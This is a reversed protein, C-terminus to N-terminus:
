PMVGAVTRLIAAQSSYSEKKKQKPPSKDPSSPEDDKEDFYSTVSLLGQSVGQLRMENQIRTRTPEPLLSAVAAAATWWVAQLKADRQMGQLMATSRLYRVTRLLLKQQPHKQGEVVEVLHYAIM